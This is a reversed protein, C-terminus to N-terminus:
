DVGKVGYEHLIWKLIIGLSVDTFFTSFVIDGEETIQIDRM